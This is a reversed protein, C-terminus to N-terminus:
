NTKVIMKNPSSLFEISFFWFIMYNYFLATGFFMVFFLISIIKTFLFNAKKYFIFFLFLIIMLGILGGSYWIYATGPFYVDKIVNGYGFGFLLEFNKLSLCYSYAGLRASSANKNFLFRDVSFKFVEFNNYLLIVLLLFLLLYLLFQLKNKITYFFYLLYVIFIYFFGQGSTSLIIGITLFINITINILKNKKLPDFVSLTLPVILFQTFMSPELFFSSPRFNYDFIKDYDLKAYEDLYVTLGNIQGLVIKGFAYYFLYQMMIFITSIIGVFIITKKFIKYDLMRPTCLFVSLMYFIFKALRFVLTFLSETDLNQLQSNILTNVLFYISAIFFITFQENFIIKKFNKSFFLYDLLAFVFFLMLIVDGITFHYFGKYICLLPYIAFFISYLIRININFHKNYNM